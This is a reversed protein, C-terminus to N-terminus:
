AGCNKKSTTTRDHRTRIIERRVWRRTVTTYTHARPDGVHLASRPAGGLGLEGRVLGRAGVLRAVVLKARQLVAELRHARRPVLRVLGRDVGVVRERGRERLAVGLLRARVVGLLFSFGGVGVGRGRSGVPRGCHPPKRREVGLLSLM